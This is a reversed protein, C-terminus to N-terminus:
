IAYNIVTESIDEAYEGVRRISDVIHGISIVTVGKEQLAFTNIEKCLKEIKKVSEINENAAKLDKRFFAGISKSFIGLALNSAPQILDVIKRDVESDILNIVSQSIRVIHDGIREIIRSII